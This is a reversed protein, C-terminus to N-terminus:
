NHSDPFLQGLEQTPANRTQEFWRFHRSRPVSSRFYIALTAEVTWKEAWGRVLLHGCHLMEPCIHIKLVFAYHVRGLDQRGPTSKSSFCCLGQPNRRSCNFKFFRKTSSPTAVVPIPVAHLVNNPSLCNALGQWGTMSNPRINIIKKFKLRNRM